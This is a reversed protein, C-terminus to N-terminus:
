SNQEARGLLKWANPEQEEKIRRISRITVGSGLYTAIAAAIVVVYKDEDVSINEMQSNTETESDEFTKKPPPSDKQFEGKQADDNYIYSLITEQVKIILIVLSLVLFVTVVGLLAVALSSILIDM